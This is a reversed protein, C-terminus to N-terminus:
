FLSFISTEIWKNLGLLKFQKERTALIALFQFLIWHFLFTVSPPFKWIQVHKGRLKLINRFHVHM